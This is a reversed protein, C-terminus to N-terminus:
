DSYLRGELWNELIKKSANFLNEPIESPDYWKWNQSKDPEANFAEGKLSEVLIGVAVYHKSYAIDNVISTVAKFELNTLGTEEEVERKATQEFSEGFEM